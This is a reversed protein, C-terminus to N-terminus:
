LLMSMEEESIKNLRKKVLLILEISANIRNLIILADQLKTKLDVDKLKEAEERYNFNDIPNAVIFDKIYQEIDELVYDKVPYEDMEYVGYYGSVLLRYQDRLNMKFVQMNNLSKVKQNSPLESIKKLNAQKIKSLRFIERSLSVFISYCNLGLSTVLEFPYEDAEYSNLFSLFENIKGRLRNYEYSYRDYNSLIMDIYGQIQLDIKYNYDECYTLENYKDGNM